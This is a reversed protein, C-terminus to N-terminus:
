LWRRVASQYRRYQAGFKAELYREERAIVGIRVVAIAPIALVLVAPSDAAVGIGAYAVLLAIYIPNRSRRYLGCSVLATAPDRTRYSTGARAFQRIAVSAGFVGLAFLM